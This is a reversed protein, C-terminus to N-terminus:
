TASAASADAVEKQLESRLPTVLANTIDFNLITATCRSEPVLDVTLSPDVYWEPAFRLDGELHVTIERPPEGYGCSALQRGSVLGLRARYQLRLSASFHSGSISAVIPDRRWVSAKFGLQSGLLYQDVPTWEDEQRFIFSSGPATDPCAENAAGEKCQPIAAEAAALLGPWSTRVTVPIREATQAPVAVPPLALPLDAHMTCASLAPLLFLFPPLRTALRGWSSVRRLPHRGGM